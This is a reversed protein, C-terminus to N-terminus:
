WALSKCDAKSKTHEDDAKLIWVVNAEKSELFSKTLLNFQIKDWAECICGHKVTTPFFPTWAADITQESIDLKM